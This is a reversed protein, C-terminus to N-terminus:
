LTTSFPSDFSPIYTSDNMCQFLILISYYKGNFDKIIKMEKLFECARKISNDVSSTNLQVRLNSSKRGGYLLKFYADSNDRYVFEAVLKGSKKVYHCVAIDGRPIYIGLEEKVWRRFNERDTEGRRCRRVRSGYM